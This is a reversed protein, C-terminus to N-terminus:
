AVFKSTVTFRYPKKGDNPVDAVLTVKVTYVQGVVLKDRLDFSMKSGLEIKNYGPQPNLATTSSFISTRSGFGLQTVKVTYVASEWSHQNWRGVPGVNIQRDETCVELRATDRIRGFLRTGINVKSGQACTTPTAAHAVSTSTTVPSLAVLVLAVLATRYLRSVNATMVRVTLARVPSAVATVAAAPTATRGTRQCGRFSSSRRRAGLGAPLDRPRSVFPM